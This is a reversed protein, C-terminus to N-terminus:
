VGAVYPAVLDQPMPTHPHSLAWLVEAALLLRMKAAVLEFKAVEWQKGISRGNHGALSLVNRRHPRDRLRRVSAAQHLDQLVQRELELAVLQKRLADGLMELMLQKKAMSGGVQNPLRYIRMLLDAFMETMVMAHPINQLNTEVIVLQDEMVGILKRLNRSNRTAM